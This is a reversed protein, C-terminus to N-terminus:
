LRDFLDSHEELFDQSMPGGHDLFIVMARQEGTQPLELALHGFEALVVCQQPLADLLVQLTVPRIQISLFHEADV